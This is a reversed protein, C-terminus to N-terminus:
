APVAVDLAVAETPREDMSFRSVERVVIDGLDIESRILELVRSPETRGCTFIDLAILGCPRMQYDPALDMAADWIRAADESLWSVGRAVLIWTPRSFIVRM